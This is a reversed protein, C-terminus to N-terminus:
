KLIGLRKYCFTLNNHSEVYAPNIETASRFVDVADLFRNQKCYVVGLCNLLDPYNPRYRVAMELAEGAEDYRELHYLSIGLIFWSDVCDSKLELSKRLQKVAEDHNGTLAYFMGLLHHFRGPDEEDAIMKEIKALQEQELPAYPYNEDGALAPLLAALTKALDSTQIDPAQTQARLM